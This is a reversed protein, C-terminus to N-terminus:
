SIVSVASSVASTFEAVTAASASTKTSKAPGTGTTMSPNRLQWHKAKQAPPLITKCPWPTISTRSTLSRTSRKKLFLGRRVHTQVVGGSGHGPVRSCGAGGRGQRGGGSGQTLASINCGQSPIDSKQLRKFRVYLQMVSDFDQFKQRDVLITTKVSDFTLDKIGEEFYHIKKQEVLEPVMYEALAAHQNYQEVHATCYKDFTYNKRDGSYYLNKLNLTM